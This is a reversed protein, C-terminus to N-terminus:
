SLFVSIYRSGGGWCVCVGGEKQVWPRVFLSLLFSMKSFTSLLSDTEKVCKGLPTMLSHIVNAGIGCRANNLM